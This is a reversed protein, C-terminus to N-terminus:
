RLRKLVVGVKSPIGFSRITYNVTVRWANLQTDDNCIVRKVRIRPEYIRLVDKIAEEIELATFSDAHEFLLAVLNAGKDPQFPREYFNTLILNKVANKIAEDDKLPTIDKKLPHIPLSLDLDAFSKKRRVTSVQVSATTSKDSYSM